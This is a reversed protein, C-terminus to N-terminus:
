LRRWFYRRNYLGTLADHLARERYHEEQRGVFWGFGAFAVATGALMYAYVGPNRLLDLWPDGGAAGQLVLWGAPSGFSLGAGQLARVLPKKMASMSARARKASM